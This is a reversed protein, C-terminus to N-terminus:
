ISDVEYGEDLCQLALNFLKLFIHIYTRLFCETDKGKSMQIVVHELFYITHTRM